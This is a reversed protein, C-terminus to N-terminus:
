EKCDLRHRDEIDIDVIATWIESNAFRQWRYSTENIRKLMATNLLRVGNLGTEEKLERVLDKVSPEVADETGVGLLVDDLPPEDAGDDLPSKM